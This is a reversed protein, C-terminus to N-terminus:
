IWIEVVIGLYLGDVTDKVGEVRCERGLVRFEFYRCLAGAGGGAGRLEDRHPVSQAPNRQYRRRRHM